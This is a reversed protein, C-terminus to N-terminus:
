RENVDRWYAAETDHACLSGSVAFHPLEAYDGSYAPLARKFLRDGAIVDYGGSEALAALDDEETLKKCKNPFAEDDSKFWSATDIQGYAGTEMLACRIAQAFCQQHVILLRGGPHRKAFKEPIFGCVPCCIRYPTGYLGHLARVAGIAGPSLAINLAASGASKLYKFSESEGYIVAKKNYESEIRKKILETSDAAPLDQPLAGFVGIYGCAASESGAFRRILADYAKSIGEDYLAIGNTEVSIAPLGTKKEILKQMAKPDTAIVAPVPTGILATFAPKIESAADAIKDIYRDDRGLIADIDRLGASFIASKGRFWRPEDFGCVNGTCGGADSIVIMGGMSYLAACAGSIDPTFPSLYKRLGKM